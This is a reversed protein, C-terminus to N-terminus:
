RRKNARANVRVAVLEKEYAVKVVSLSGEAKSTDEERKIWLGNAGKKLVAKKLYYAVEDPDVKRNEGMKRLLEHVQRVEKPESM